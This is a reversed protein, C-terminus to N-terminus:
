ALELEGDDGTFVWQTGFNDKVLKTIDDGIDGYDGDWFGAGHGNRTLWFDYAIDDQNKYELAKDWLDALVMLGVFRYCDDTATKLAEESFDLDEAQECWVAAKLYSEIFLPVNRLIPSM